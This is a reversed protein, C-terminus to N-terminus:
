PCPGCDEVPSQEGPSRLTGKKPEAGAEKVTSPLDLTRQVLEVGLLEAGVYEGCHRVIEAAIAHVQSEQPIRDALLMLVREQPDYISRQVSTLVVGVPVQDTTAVVVGGVLAQLQAGDVRLAHVLM